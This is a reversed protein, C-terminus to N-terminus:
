YRWSVGLSLKNNDVRIGNAGLDNNLGASGYDEILYEVRVTTQSGIRTELGAGYVAADQYESTRFTDVGDFARLRFNTTQWGGRAYVATKEALMYGLRASLGFSERASVKANISDVGDSLEVSASASSINANAEVGFFVNQSLAYDYGVFIGGGVGNASIGDFDLSLGGGLDTGEAKVEYADRSVQAGIFPGSFTEANASSVSAVAALAAIAFKNM